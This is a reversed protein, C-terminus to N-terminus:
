PWDVRQQLAEEFSARCDEVSPLRWCWVRRQSGDAGDWSSRETIIGPVLKALKMGVETDAARRKVGVRDSVAIYDDALVSKPIVRLWSEGGRTSTGSMLREFWWMEVSDLSRIKQELLASTRPIKRLDVSSLDFHLLDYLLAERGGSDLEADMERFYDHNQACRPNIDLVCFRREDKGAPVVWDNNSTMILRLYNKLRIPDVGKAEIQQIPSTVLGKLRGEATKDGAWVAEDAQLLLCTAMHANFQGTVYRPDDVLFYHRQILSGMVEGLKTKGSGMLGRLVIAVGLRERPRQLMHAFFGFLWRFITENGDCVNNLMHDRLVAYGDKKKRPTVSFGSWLNLYDKTGPANDKDPHFEIGRYSRRKRDSLWATAWTIAKIKGDNSVIETWRNAFWARLADLTLVRQVDEIPANPQELFVVAKSGMLVLAFEENMREIDYGLARPTPPPKNGSHSEVGKQGTEEEGDIECEDDIVEANDILDATRRPTDTM